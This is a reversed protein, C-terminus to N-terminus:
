EIHSHVVWPRAEDGTRSSGALLLTGDSAFAIAPDILAGATYTAKESWTMGRDRSIALWVEGNLGEAGVTEVIALSDGYAALKVIGSLRNKPVDLPEIVPPDPWDPRKDVRQEFNDPYEMPHWVRYKWTQGGDDSWNIYVRQAVASEPVDPDDVASLHSMGPVHPFEPNRTDTWKALGERWVVYLKDGVMVGTADVINGSGWIPSNLWTWSFGGDSSRILEVRNGLGFDWLLSPYIMYLDNGSSFLSGRSTMGMRFRPHTTWNVTDESSYLDMHGNFQQTLFFLKGGAVCANMLQLYDPNYRMADSGNPLDLKRPESWSKGDRSESLWFWFPGDWPEWPVGDQWLLVWRDKFWVLTPRTTHIPTTKEFVVRHDEPLAFEKLHQKVMDTMEKKLRQRADHLRRKVTGEPVGLALACDKISYEEMYFLTVVDAQAETLKSLAEQIREIGEGARAPSTVDAGESLSIERSRLRGRDRIFQKARNRAIGCVWPGFKSPDELNGIQRYAVIFSDQLVDLAAERDSLVAFAVAHVARQFRRVLADFASSGGARALEVLRADTADSQSGITLHM